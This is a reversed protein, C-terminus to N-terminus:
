KLLKALKQKRNESIMRSILEKQYSMVCGEYIKNQLKFKHIVCTGCGEMANDVLLNCITGDINNGNNKIYELAESLSKM